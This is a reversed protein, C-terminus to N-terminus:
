VTWRASQPDHSASKANTPLAIELAAHPWEAAMGEVRALFTHDILRCDRLDLVVKRVGGDVGRLVKGLRMLMTFVAAGHVKVTLVDGSRASEIRSGFFFGPRVGRLFHLMAKTALGAGVGKLLDTMLTVVVTVAFMLFQDWGVHWAHLWVKPGGLRLGVMILMAALASLPIMQLLGPVAVISLLLFAGHFFNAKNSQAGADINAKSRVIESIMPLGGVAASVLNGCGLALLDRNLDSARKAPDLSDVALTSLTSEIFGVLAFMVIWKISAGTFVVDFNPPTVADLLSAPLKVLLDPGSAFERGFLTGSGPAALHLASGIAVALALVVLPAPVRAAAKRWKPWLALVLLSLVGILTVAVNAKGLSAPIEALLPLPTKAAPTVGLANHAQKSLITIGIAAMMGHVVSTAMAAGVSAFRLLGFAIQIAAAVMGVALTRTYGLQPDFQGNVAGLEGVAGLVIVILGAAPGKITLRASGLPSVILGGIIATMVGAIPPFESAKAIALCLPLAILFVFFGAKLDAALSNRAILPANPSAESM